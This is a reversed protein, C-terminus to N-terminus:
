HRYGIQYNGQWAKISNCVSTIASAPRIFRVPCQGLADFNTATLTKLTTGDDFLIGGVIPEITFTVNTNVPSSIVLMEVLQSGDPYKQVVKTYTQDASWVDFGQVQTSDVIAGNIGSRVLISRPENADAGLTLETAGSANTGSIYCTLRADAQLVAGTALNPLDLYREMGTWGAPQATPLEPLPMVTVTLSGTQATGSSPAYLGAVTYVGPSSFKSVIGNATQGTYTNTGIM